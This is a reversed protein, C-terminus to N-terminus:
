DNEGDTIPTKKNSIRGHKEEGAPVNDFYNEFFHRNLESRFYHKRDIWIFGDGKSIVAVDVPGGVTERELSMRQQFSSLSVLTSAVQALDKPRLTAIEQLIEGNRQACDHLVRDSFEAAQAATAIRIKQKWYEQQEPSFDEIVDIAAVPMERIRNIAEKLRDSVKQTIGYLFSNVMETYAFAEVISPTNEAIQKCTIPRFKLKNGYIGGVEFHQLVPFHEKEGFGAVVVGSFTGNPFYDKKLLLTALEWLPRILNSDIPWGEFARLVLDSIKGSLNGVFKKSLEEDFGTAPDKERWFQVRTQIAKRRANM